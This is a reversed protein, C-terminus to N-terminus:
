KCFLQMMQEKQNIEVIEEVYEKKEIIQYLEVIADKFQEIDKTSLAMMVVLKVPVSGWRIPHKLTMVSIVSQCITESDAHPLAVGTELSTTGMKERNYISQRFGTKVYKEQELKSIMLDLCEEKSEVDVQLEVFDINLFQAITPSQFDKAKKLFVKKSEKEMVFSSYVDLIRVLDENSVLPSVKIVPITDINLDIPTIILDVNRMRNAQLKDITSVEIHDREPLFKKVRNLILQSSLNGYPCIVIINNSKSERDLAIQFYILILSIEDDNLVVDYKSELVSLAYWVESFLRSYQNKIDKLLPNHIRIGKKLRVVMAPLHYLLSHYLSDNQDFSVKEIFEMREIIEKVMSTYQTENTKFRNTIRHAFLQRCLYEIDEQTFVVNMEQKIFEIMSNAVVYTEMYRINNFLFDNEKEVHFDMQVRTILTIMTIELSRIYYDSVNETLEAYSGYLINRVLEIINADFLIYLLEEYGSIGDIKTLTYFSVIQKIAKQINLEDGSAYVGNDNSIILCNSGLQKSVANLDNYLSSKSIIFEDALSELTITKSEILLRKVIQLRRYEMSYKDKETQKLLNEKLADKHEKTGELYVGTGPIRILEVQFKKVFKEIDQFDSYVTKTSVSLKRSFFSAPRFVNQECLLKM